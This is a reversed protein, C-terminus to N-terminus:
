IVNYNNTFLIYVSTSCIVFYYFVIIIYYLSYLIKSIQNDKLLYLTPPALICSKGIKCEKHFHGIVFSNKVLIHIIRDPLRKKNIGRYTEPKIFSLIKAIFSSVKPFLLFSLELQHGHMLIKDEYLLGELGCDIDNNGKVMIFNHNTFETYLEPHAAVAKLRDGQFTDGLLILIKGSNERLQKVLSEENDIKEQSMHLDALILYDDKKLRLFKKSFLDRM